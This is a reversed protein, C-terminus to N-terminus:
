IGRRGALIQERNEIMQVIQSESDELRMDRVQKLGRVQSLQALQAQCWGALVANVKRRECLKLLQVIQSEAPMGPVDIDQRVHVFDM